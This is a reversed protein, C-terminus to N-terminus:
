RQRAQSQKASSLTELAVYICSKCRWNALVNGAGVTSERSDVTAESSIHESCSFKSSVREGERDRERVQDQRRDSCNTSSIKRKAPMHQRSRSRGRSGKCKRLAYFIRISNTNLTEGRKQKQKWNETKLEEESPEANNSSKVTPWTAYCALVNQIYLNTSLKQRGSDGRCGGEGGLVSWLKWSQSRM